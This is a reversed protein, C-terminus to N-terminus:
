IICYAIIITDISLSIIKKNFYCFFGGMCSRERISGAEIDLPRIGIQDTPLVRGFEIDEPGFCNALTPVYSTNHCPVVLCYWLAFAGMAHEPKTHCETM